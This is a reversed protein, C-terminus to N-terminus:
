DVRQPPMTDVVEDEWRRGNLWTAAHPVFRVDRRWQESQRQVTLAGMIAAQLKDDVKLKAWAKMAAQKGVKRPYARWFANFADGDVATSSSTKSRKVESRKVEATQHGDSTQSQDSKPSDATLGFVSKKETIDNIENPPPPYKSHPYRLRQRFKPVFLYRQNNHPYAIVLTADILEMLLKEVRESDVTGAMCRVRLAFNSGTFRGMDDACLLISLFLNRAEPSCAWYRDSTLLEDRIMRDPM